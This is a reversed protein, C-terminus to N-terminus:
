GGDTIITNIFNAEDRSTVSALNAGLQECREKAKGWKVKGKMLKYCHNEYGSWWPNRTCENLDAIPGTPGKQGPPGAPGTAGKEGFAGPPGISGPGATGMCMPGKEGPPGAPGIPGMEGPPGPPGVFGPLKNSRTLEALRLETKRSLKFIDESNVRSKVAPGTAGKEGFAGPPGIPGPGASGMCMAGKQGPPCTPGMAVKEGPPGPPGISGPGVPGMCMAGKQGPPGAPGMAGKKGPPGPPGISGPGAPGMCMPGKEGPPGAPGIPGMEGPPGPPGVFGPLRHLGARSVYLPNPTNAAADALSRWDTQQSQTPTAGGTTGTQPQQQRGASSSM